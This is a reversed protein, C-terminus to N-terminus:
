KDVCRRATAGATNVLGNEPYSLVFDFCMEDETKEGFYAPTSTPNDYVCTTKLKDGPNVLLPTPLTHSGQANFDFNTEDVVIESKTPDGGRLIETKLARGRGHMHPSASLITAPATLNPTCTGSTTVGMTKAPIDISLTGLTSIVATNKRPTPTVCLSVGSSDKADTYGAVNWYHLQLILWRDKAPLKLGVDSPLVNNGAGPAWGTIFAADLPMKCKGFAGEVQPTGTEFLIWHHVVRKDDIVPAFATAQAGAEFPAKFYFCEYLNGADAPVDFKAGGEGHALFTTRESAPCPLYDPGVKETPVGSDGCAATTSAPAGGDLWANLKDLDTKPMTNGSPPMVRSGTENIRVKMLEAVTKSPDSKAKAKVDALTVLPMPAGFSPPNSHCKQCNAVLADSVDCPLAAVNSSTDGGADATTKDDRSSSCAAVLALALFSLTRKM